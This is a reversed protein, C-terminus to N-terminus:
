ITQYLEHGEGHHFIILPLSWGSKKKPETTFFLPPSALPNLVVYQANTVEPPFDVMSRQSEWSYVEM